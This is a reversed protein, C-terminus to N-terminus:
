PQLFYVILNCNYFLILIFKHLFIIFFYYYYFFKILYSKRNWDLAGGPLGGLALGGPEGAEGLGGPGGGAGPRQQSVPLVINVSGTVPWVTQEQWYSIKPYWLNACPAAVNGKDIYLEGYESPM